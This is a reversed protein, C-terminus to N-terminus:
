YAKTFSDNDEFSGDGWSNKHSPSSSRLTSKKSSLPKVQNALSTFYNDLSKRMAPLISKIEPINSFDKLSKVSLLWNKVKLLKNKLRNACNVIGFGIDKKKYYGIRLEIEEALGEYVTAQDEVFDRWLNVMQEQEEQDQEYERLVDARGHSDFKGADRVMSEISMFDSKIMKQWDIIEQDNFPMCSSHFIFRRIFDFFQEFNGFTFDFFKGIYNNVVRGIEDGGSIATRGIIGYGIGKLIDDGVINDEVIELNKNGIIGRKLLDGIGENKLKSQIFDLDKNYEKIQKDLDEVLERIEEDSTLVEKDKELSLKADKKENIKNNLKEIEVLIKKKEREKLEKDAIKKSMDDDASVEEDGEKKKNNKIELDLKAISCCLDGLNKKELKSSNSELVKIEETISKIKSDFMSSNLYMKKKEELQRILTKTKTRDERMDRWAQLKALLKQAKYYYKNNESVNELLIDSVGKKNSFLFSSISFSIFFCIVFKSTKIKM